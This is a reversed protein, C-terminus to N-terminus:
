TERRRERERESARRVARPVACFPPFDGCSAANRWSRLRAIATTTTTTTTPPPPSAADVNALRWRRRGSPLRARSAYVNSVIRVPARCFPPFSSRSTPRKASWPEVTRSLRIADLTTIITDHRTTGHARRGSRRPEWSGRVIELRRRARSQTVSVYMRKERLFMSMHVCVHAFAARPRAATHTHATYIHINTIPSRIFLFTSKQLFLRRLLFRSRRFVFSAAGLPKGSEFPGGLFALCDYLHTECRIASNDLAPFVKGM